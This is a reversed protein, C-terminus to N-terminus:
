SASNSRSIARLFAAAHASRGPSVKQRQLQCIHRRVARQQSGHFASKHAANWQNVRHQVDAAAIAM